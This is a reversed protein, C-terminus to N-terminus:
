RLKQTVRNMDAITNERDFGFDGSIKTTTRRTRKDPSLSSFWSIIVAIILKKISRGIGLKANNKALLKANRV